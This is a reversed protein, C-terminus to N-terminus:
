SYSWKKVPLSFYRLECELSRSLSVLTTIWIPIIKFFSVIEGNNRVKTMRAKKCSIIVKESYRKSVQYFSLRLRVSCVLHLKETKTKREWLNRLGQYDDNNKVKNQKPLM